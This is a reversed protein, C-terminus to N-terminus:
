TGGSEKKRAYKHRAENMWPDITASFETALKAKRKTMRWVHRYVSFSVYVSLIALVLGIALAPKDRTLSELLENVM